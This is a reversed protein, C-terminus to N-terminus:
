QGELESLRNELADVKDSLEQIAKSLYPIIASADIQCRDTGDLQPVHFVSDPIINEIEQAVYGNDVERNNKKWKFSRHRIANIINLAKATSDAIDYKLNEDSNWATVGYQIGNECTIRVWPQSVTQNDVLVLTDIGEDSTDNITAIVYGYQNSIRGAALIEGGSEIDGDARITGATYIEDSRIDTTSQQGYANAGKIVLSSEPTLGIHPNDHINLVGDPTIRVYRNTDGDGVILGDDYLYFGTNLVDDINGKGHFIGSKNMTVRINGQADKLYFNGDVNKDRGGLTLDGAVIYDANIGEAYLRNLVAVGDASLAANWHEGKDTSVMLSGASFRWQIDSTELSEGNGYTYIIGGQGDDEEFKHLGMSSAYSSYISNMVIEMDSVARNYTRQILSQTKQSGTFRPKLNQKSSEADCSISTAANVTYTAHSIFCPYAVDGRGNVYATDGADIDPNEVASANLVRFRMGGIKGYLFEAIIDAQGTTEILPNGSINIVYGETGTTEPNLETTYDDGGDEAEINDSADVTVTVGTILVDDTDVSMGYPTQVVQTSDRDGFESGDAWDGETWPNFTGGDLVVGDPYPVVNEIVGGDITEGDSYPTTTTNFTGGDFADGDSYPTTGTDFTGGDLSGGGTYKTSHNFTGGDWIPILLTGTDYWEFKLYYRNAEFVIKAYCGMIQAAYSIIDHWTMTDWQKPQVVVGIGEPFPLTDNYIRIDAVEHSAAYEVLDGITTDQNFVFSSDKCPVDFKSMDDYGVLTVNTGDYSYEDVYYRGINVKELSGDTLIGGIWVVMTANRFDYASLADDSNDLLVTIKGTVAAGVTFKGDVTTSSDRVIGNMLVRDEHYELSTGDERLTLNIWAKSIRTKGYRFEKDFGLM